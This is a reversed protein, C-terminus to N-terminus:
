CCLSLHLLLLLLPPEDDRSLQLPLYNSKLWVDVFTQYQLLVIIIISSRKQKKKKEEKLKILSNIL